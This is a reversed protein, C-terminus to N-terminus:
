DNKDKGDQEIKSPESFWRKQVTERQSRLQEDQILEALSWGYKPLIQNAIKKYARIFEDNTGMQWGFRELNAQCEKWLIEFMTLSDPRELKNDIM